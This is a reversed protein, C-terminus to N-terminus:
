HLRTAYNRYTDNRVRYEKHLNQMRGTSNLITSFQPAILSKRIKNTRFWGMAEASSYEVFEFKNQDRVCDGSNPNTENEKSNRRCNTFSSIKVAENEM